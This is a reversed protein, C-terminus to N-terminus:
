ILTFVEKLKKLDGAFAFLTTMEERTRKQLDKSWKKAFIRNWIKETDKDKFQKTFGM